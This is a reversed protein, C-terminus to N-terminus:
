NNTSTEDTIKTTYIIKWLNWILTATNSQGNRHCARLSEQVQAELTELEDLTVERITM